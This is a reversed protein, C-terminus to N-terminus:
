VKTRIKMGSEVNKQCSPLISGDVEVVCEQCSGMMCFFGRHEKLKPSRRLIRINNSFLSVALLEGKPVKYTKGDIEIEVLNKYQIKNNKIRLNQNFDM